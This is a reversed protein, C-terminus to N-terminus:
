QYKEKTIKLAASSDKISLTNGKTTVGSKWM